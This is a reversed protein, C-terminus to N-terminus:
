IAASTADDTSGSGLLFGSNKKAPDFVANPSRLQNANKVIIIDGTKGGPSTYNRLMVSDYGQDFANHLTSVVEHHAENGTLTLAVPRDARHVLQHVQPAAAGSQSTKANDLSAAAYENAIEPDRALSVGPTQFRQTPSGKFENFTEGTGHYLPMDTRFGIEKARAM